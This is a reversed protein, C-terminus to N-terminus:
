AYTKTTTEERWIKRGFNPIGEYWEGTIWSLWKMKNSTVCPIIEGTSLSFCFLAPFLWEIVDRDILCNSAIVTSRYYDFSPIQCRLASTKSDSVLSCSFMYCSTSNYALYYRQLATRQQVGPNICVHTSDTVVRWATSIYPEIHRAWEKEGKIENRKSEM